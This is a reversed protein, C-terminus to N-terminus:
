TGNSYYISDANGGGMGATFKRKDATARREESKKNAVEFRALAANAAKRKADADLEAKKKGLVQLQEIAQDLWDPPGSDETVFLPYVLYTEVDEDAEGGGEEVQVFGLSLLVETAGNVKGYQREWKTANIRRYHSTGDKEKQGETSANVILKVIMGLVKLVRREDKNETTLIKYAKQFSQDTRDDNVNVTNNLASPANSANGEAEIDSPEVPSSNDTKPDQKNVGSRKKAGISSPEIPSSNATKVKKKNVPSRKKSGQPSPDANAARFLADDEDELAAAPADNRLVMRRILLMVAVTFLLTIGNEPVLGTAKARKGRKRKKTSERTSPKNTSVDNMKDGHIATNHNYIDVVNMQFAKSLCRAVNQSGANEHELSSFLGFLDSGAYLPLADPSMDLCEMVSHQRACHAKINDSSAKGIRGELDDDELSALHDQCDGLYSHRTKKGAEFSTGTKSNQLKALRLKDPLSPAATPTSLIQDVPKDKGSGTALSKKEQPDSAKKTMLRWMSKKEQKPDKKTTVIALKTTVQDECAQEVNAMLNLREFITFNSRFLELFYFEATECHKVMGKRACNDAHLSLAQKWKLLCLADPDEKMNGSGAQSHMDEEEFIQDEDYYSDDTFDDSSSEYYGHGSIMGRGQLCRSAAYVPTQFRSTLANSFTHCLTSVSSDKLSYATEFDKECQKRHKESPSMYARRARVMDIIDQDEDDYEESIYEQEQARIKTRDTRRKSGGIMWSAAAFVYGAVIGSLHGWFDARPMLVSIIVLEFWHQTVTPVSMPLTLTFYDMGIPIGVYSSESWKDYNGLVKLAFIVASFGVSYTHMKDKAFHKVIYVHVVGTVVILAMFYCFYGPFGMGGRARLREEDGLYALSAVNMYLHFKGSHVLQGSLLRYYEEGHLIRSAHFSWRQNWNKCFTRGLMDEEFFIYILTLVSLSTIPATQLSVGSSNSSKNFSRSLVNLAVIAILITLVADFQAATLFRGLGGMGIADREYRHAANGRGGGFPNRFPNLM